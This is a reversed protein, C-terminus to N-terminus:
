SKALEAIAKIHEWSIAMFINADGADKSPSDSLVGIVKTPDNKLVIPSGSFGGTVAGTIQIKKVFGTQRLQAGVVGESFTPMHASDLLQLGLPFGAYQVSEGVEPYRGALELGNLYEKELMEKPTDSSLRLIALDHSFDLSEVHARKYNGKNGVVLLGAIELPAGVLDKVVHACTILINYGKLWFATGIVNLSDAFVKGSNPQFKPRFIGLARVGSYVIPENSM